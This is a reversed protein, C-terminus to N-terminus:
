KRALSPSKKKEPSRWVAGRIAEGFVGVLVPDFQTGCCRRLEELAEEGPVRPERYPRRTTMTDYADAISIIGPAL